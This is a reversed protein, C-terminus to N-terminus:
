RTPVNFWKSGLDEYRYNEIYSIAEDVNDVVAYMKRYNDRAFSQDYSKEFHAFLDDYFGNVNVFVIPKRHYDLQKLTLVELAEELTGFGGPMVIFADSHDRMMTKRESMTDTILLEDANQTGLDREYIKKPIIGIASGGNAMLVSAMCEMLGVNAGGYIMQHRHQALLIGLHKAQEFYVDALANSSSSFVCINM